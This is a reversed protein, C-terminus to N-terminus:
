RYGKWSWAAAQRVREKRSAADTVCGLNDPGCSHDGDCIGWRACRESTDKGMSSYIRYKEDTFPHELKREEKPISSDETQIGNVPAAETPTAGSAEPVTALEEEAPAEGWSAHHGGQFKAPSPPPPAHWTNTHAVDAHHWRGFTGAWFSGAHMTGPGPMPQGLLDAGHSQGVRSDLSGDGQSASGPGLVRQQDERLANFDLSALAWGYLLTVILVSAVISLRIVRTTACGGEAPSPRSQKDKPSQARAMGAHAHAAGPRGGLHQRM